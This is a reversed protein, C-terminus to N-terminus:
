ANRRFRAIYFGDMGGAPETLSPMLRVAGRADIAEAPAGGEGPQVPELRMEPHRTLFAQVQSEGEEPELSCVCYVLRGGPRVRGAASDLLRSQDAALSAIDGPKCTWLVDPHRRFTGTASCPADLLVADFERKDTWSAADATLVEAKLGTRELNARVRELRKASRDLATVQAGMAALQLTKGGPAACLDLATQGPEPALLRAPIAAAADQVWWGGEDFGPWTSVDGRLASRVTHGPLVVGEVAEALAGAADPTKLSLDTAPEEAVRGALALATEEGYAARWRAFLWDPIFSAPEIVPRERDLGRLVANILKILMKAGPTEGALALTTSVAAHPPTDLALIQAAGLRLLRIVADPPPKRLRAALVRDIPGQWRLTTLALTRAFGRDRSDLAALNSGDADEMGGRRALAAEVLRLAARRAELGAPPRHAPKGGPRSGEPRPGKPRPPHAPPSM